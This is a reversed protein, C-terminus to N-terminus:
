VPSGCRTASSLVTREREAGAGAAVAHAPRRLTVVTGSPGHHHITATYGRLGPLPVTAGLPQDALTPTTAM